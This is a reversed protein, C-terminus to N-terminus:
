DVKAHEAVLGSKWPSRAHRKAVRTMHRILAAARLFDRGNVEL